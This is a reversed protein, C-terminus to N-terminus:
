RSGCLELAAELGDARRRSRSTREREVLADLARRADVPRVRRVRFGEARLPAMLHLLRGVPLEPALAVDTVRGAANARVVVARRASVDVLARAVLVAMRGDEHRAVFAALRGRLAPRAAM